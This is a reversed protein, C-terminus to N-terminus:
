FILFYIMWAVLGLIIRFFPAPDLLEIIPTFVTDGYFKKPRTNKYIVWVTLLIPIAIWPNVDFTTPQLTEIKM